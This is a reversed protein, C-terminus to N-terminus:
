SEKFCRHIEAPNKTSSYKITKGNVVLDKENHSVEADFIGHSSDYKLLHASGSLSDLNNIGVIELDKYGERFLIRGIRGFGNIGVRVKAM